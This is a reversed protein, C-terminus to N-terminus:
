RVRKRLSSLVSSSPMYPTCVAGKINHQHHPIKKGLQSPHISDHYIYQKTESIALGGLGGLLFSVWARSGTRCLTARGALNNGFPLYPKRCPCYLCLNWYLIDRRNLASVMHDQLAVSQSSMLQNLQEAKIAELQGIRRELEGVVADKEAM